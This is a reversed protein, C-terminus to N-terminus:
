SISATGHIGTGYSGVPSNQPGNKFELGSVFLGPYYELFYVQLVWHPGEELIPNESPPLNVYNLVFFPANSPFGSSRWQCLSFRELTFSGNVPITIPNGQEEWPYELNSNVTYTDAFPDGIGFPLSPLFRSILCEGFEAAENGIESGVWENGERLGVGVLSGIEDIGQYYSIAGVTPNQSPTPSSLKTFTIPASDDSPYEVITDPLDDITYLGDFLAQAPYMCCQGAECCSCSVKGNKLIVSPRGGPTEPPNLKVTPM